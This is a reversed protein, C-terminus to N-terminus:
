CMGCSSDNRTPPGVVITPVVMTTPGVMLTLRTGEIDCSSDNEDVEYWQISRWKHSRLHTSIICVYMCAFTCVYKCFWILILLWCVYVSVFLGYTVGDDGHGGFRGVGTELMVQVGPGCRRGGGWWGAGAGARL